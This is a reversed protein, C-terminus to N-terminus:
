KSLAKIFMDIARRILRSISEKENEAAKELEAWQSPELMVDKRVFRAM